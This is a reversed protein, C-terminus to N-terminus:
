ARKERKERIEFEVLGGPLRRAAAMRDVVHRKGHRDEVVAMGRGVNQIVTGVIIKM